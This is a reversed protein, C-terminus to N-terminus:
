ANQIEGRAPHPEGAILAVSYRHVTGDAHLRVPRPVAGDAAATTGRYQYFVM